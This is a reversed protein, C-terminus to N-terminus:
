KCVSVCDGSARDWGGVHCTRTGPGTLTYGQDCIITGNDGPQRGTYSIDGHSPATLTGCGKISDNRTFRHEHNGVLNSM